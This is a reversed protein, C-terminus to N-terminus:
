ICNSTIIIHKHCKDTVLTVYLLLWLLVLDSRLPLILGYSELKCMKILTIVLVANQLVEGGYHGSSTGNFTILFILNTAGRTLKPGNIRLKKEVAILIRSSGKM